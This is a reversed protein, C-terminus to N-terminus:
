QEAGEEEEEGRARKKLDKCMEKAVPAEPALVADLVCRVFADDEPMPTNYPPSVLVQVAIGSRMRSAQRLASKRAEEHEKEKFHGAELFRVLDTHIIQHMTARVSDPFQEMAREPSSCNVVIRDSDCLHMVFDPLLTPRKRNLCEALREADHELLDLLQRVPERKSYDIAEVLAEAVDDFHAKLVDVQCAGDKFFLLQIVEPLIAAQHKCIRVLAKSKQGELLWPRFRADEHLIKCVRYLLHARCEMKPESLIEFCRTLAKFLCARLDGRERGRFDSRLSLRAWDSLLEVFVQPDQPQGYAHRVRVVEPLGLLAYKSYGSANKVLAEWLATQAQDGRREDLWAQPVEKRPDTHKLFASYLKSLVSHMTDGRLTGPNLAWLIANSLADRPWEYWRLASDLPQETLESCLLILQVLNLPRWHYCGQLMSALYVTGNHPPPDEQHHQLLGFLLDLVRDWPESRKTPADSDACERLEHKSAEALGAWKREHESVHQEFSKRPDHDVYYHASLIAAIVTLLPKRSAKKDFDVLKEAAPLEARSRLPTVVKTCFGETSLVHTQDTCSRVLVLLLYPRQVELALFQILGATVPPWMGSCVLERWFEREQKCASFDHACVFDWLKCVAERHRTMMGVGIADLYRDLDAEKTYNENRLMDKLLVSGFTFDPPADATAPRLMMAGDEPSHQTRGRGLTFSFKPYTGWAPDDRGWGLIAHAEDVNTGSHHVETM